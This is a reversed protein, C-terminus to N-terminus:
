KEKQDETNNSEEWEIVRGNHFNNECSPVLNIEKQWREEHFHQHKITRAQYRRTQRSVLPLWALRVNIPEM